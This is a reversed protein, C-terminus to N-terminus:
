IDGVKNFKLYTKQNDRQILDYKLLSVGVSVSELDVKLREFIKM